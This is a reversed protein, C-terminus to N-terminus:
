NLATGGQGTGVCGQSFGREMRRLSLSFTLDPTSRVSRCPNGHWGPHVESEQSLVCPHIPATNYIGSTMSSRQASCANWFDRYRLNFQHTLCILTCSWFFLSILTPLHFPKPAIAHSFFHLNYDHVPARFLARVLSRKLTKHHDM